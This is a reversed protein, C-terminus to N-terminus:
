ANDPKKDDAGPGFKQSIFKSGLLLTAIVPAFLMVWNLLDMNKYMFLYAVGALIVPGLILGWYLGVTKSGSTKGNDNSTAEALSFKDTENAM